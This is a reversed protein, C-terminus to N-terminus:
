VAQVALIPAAAVVLSGGAFLVLSQVFVRQRGKRDSRRALLPTGLLYFLVYISFVWPLDRSGVDFAGRIAPLAPGVIAIDLAAVLVGAFLVALGKKGLAATM